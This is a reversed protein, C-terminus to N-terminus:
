LICVVGDRSMAFLLPSSFVFNVLPATREPLFEGEYQKLSTDIIFTGDKVAMRHYESDLTVMVVLNSNFLLLIQGGDSGLISLSDIVNATFTFLVVVTCYDVSVGLITGVSCM